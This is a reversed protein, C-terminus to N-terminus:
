QNGTPALRSSQQTKNCCFIYFLIWCPGLTVRGSLGRFGWNKGPARFSLREEGGLVRSSGHRVHDLWSTYSFLRCCVLSYQLLM